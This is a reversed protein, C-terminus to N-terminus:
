INFFKHSNKLLINSTTAINLQKITAIKKAVYTVFSPENEHGKKEHPVLYPCDTEIMIHEIPISKIANVLKGKKAETIMGTFSFYTNENVVSNAYDASSSYCHLVKKINPFQKIITRIDDDAKRNHIVVPLNLEEAVMLQQEFCYIQEEKSTNMHHYDLGIEGIAVFDHAQALQKLKGFSNFNKCDCPHIGITASIFDPFQQAQDLAELSTELNIGINIIHTIGAQKANNVLTNLEQKCMYLHAHTDIM